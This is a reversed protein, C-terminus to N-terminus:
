NTSCTVRLKLVPNEGKEERRRTEGFRQCQRPERKRRKSANVRKAACFHTASVIRSVVHPISSFTMRARHGTRLLLEAVKRFTSFSQGPNREPLLRVSRIQQLATSPEIHRSQCRGHTGVNRENALVKACLALLWISVLMSRMESQGQATRLANRLYATSFFCLARPIANQPQNRAPAARM